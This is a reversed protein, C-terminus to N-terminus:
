GVPEPIHVVAPHLELDLFYLSECVVYVWYVSIDLEGPFVSFDVPQKKVTQSGGGM